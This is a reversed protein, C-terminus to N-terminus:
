VQTHQAIGKHVTRRQLNHATGTPVISHQPIDKLTIHM